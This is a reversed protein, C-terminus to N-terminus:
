GLAQVAVVLEAERGVGVKALISKIQQRLTGLAVGRRIAIAERPQGLALALAIEAETLTLGFAIRLIQASPARPGDRIIVLLRPRFPMDWHTAPLVRVHAVWREGPPGLVVGEGGSTASYTELAAALAGGLLRDDRLDRATLRGQRLALIRGDAVLREARGTMGQVRGDAACLFAAVGAHELGSAIDRVTQDGLALRTRVAALAHPALAAFAATRDADIRGERQTRLVSLGILIDDRQLLTTQCSHPIDYKRVLDRYSGPRLSPAVADYERDGVIQMPAAGISAAVRPNVRAEYGGSELFERKADEETQSIAFALPGDQIRILEGFTSGTLSALAGLAPLWQGDLPADAFAHAALHYEENRM